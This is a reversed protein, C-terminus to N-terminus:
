FCSHYICDLLLDLGLVATWLLAVGRTKSSLFVGALSETGIWKPLCRHLTYSFSQATCVMTDTTDSLLPEDPLPKVLTM